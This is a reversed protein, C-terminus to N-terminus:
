QKTALFSAVIGTNVWASGQLRWVEGSTRIVRLGDVGNNGGAITTADNVATTPNKKTLSIFPFSM